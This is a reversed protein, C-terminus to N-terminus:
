NEKMSEIAEQLKLVLENCGSYEVMDSSVVSLSDYVKAGKQYFCIIPVDYNNAWGLEIGQGTSPFSV